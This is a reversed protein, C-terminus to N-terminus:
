VGPLEEYPMFSELASGPTSNVLRTGLRNMVPIFGKIPDFQRRMKRTLKELDGGDKRNCHSAGQDMHFDHGCLYIADYGLYTLVQLAWLTTRRYGSWVVGNRPFMPIVGPGNHWDAYLVEPMTGLEKGDYKSQRRSSPTVKIIDEDDVRRLKWFRGELKPHPKANEQKGWDDVMTWFKPPSHLFHAAENIAMVALGSAEISPALSALSFGTGALIISRGRASGRIKQPHFKEGDFQKLPAPDWPQPEAFRGTPCDWNPDHLRPEESKGCEPNADRLWRFHPCQACVELRPGAVEDALVRLHVLSDEERWAPPAVPVSFKAKAVAVTM